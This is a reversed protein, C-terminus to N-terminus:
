SHLAENANEKLSKLSGCHKWGMAKMDARVIPLRMRRACYWHYGDQSHVPVQYLGCGKEALLACTASFNTNFFGCWSIIRKHKVKNSGPEPHLELPAHTSLQLLKTAHKSTWADLQLMQEPPKTYHWGQAVIAPSDAFWSQNIWPGHGTAITDTDLKLWYSTSAYQPVYVFGALMKHRQPDTWKSGKEGAYEIGTPPWRILTCDDHRVVKSVEDAALQSQDFFVLMPQRFIEPRYKKWTPLSIALEKLHKKDVGIVTTFNM